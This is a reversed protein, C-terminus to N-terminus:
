LDIYTTQPLSHVIVSSFVTSQSPPIYCLDLGKYLNQFHACVM